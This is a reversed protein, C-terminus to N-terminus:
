PTATLRVFREVTADIAGRKGAVLRRAREGYGARGEPDALLRDIESELAQEDAVEIIADASRLDQMVPVFNQMNPGVIVPKGLAAPELPNQGGRDTLSKGVFVVTAQSYFDALEGTTDVLLVDRREESVSEGNTKLGSRLVWRHPSRKLEAVVQRTREVHRPVLVLFLNPYTRRLRELCGLLVREEGPWTSGGLLIPDGDAVGAARLISRVYPRGEGAVPTMDYKASGM